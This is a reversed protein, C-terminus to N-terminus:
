FPRIIESRRSVRHVEKALAGFPGILRQTHAPTTKPTSPM